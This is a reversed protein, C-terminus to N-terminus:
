VAYKEEHRTAEPGEQGKVATTTEAWEPVPGMQRSWSRGQKSGGRDRPAASPGKSPWGLPGARRPANEVDHLRDRPATGRAARPDDFRVSSAQLM